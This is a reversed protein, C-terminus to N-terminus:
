VIRTMRGIERAYWLGKSQKSRVEASVTLDQDLFKHILPHSYMIDNSSPDRIQISTM